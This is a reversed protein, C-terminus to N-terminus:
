AGLGYAVQINNIRSSASFVIIPLRDYLKNDRIEKICQIGSKSPMNLDIFLLDPLYSSLLSLLDDGNSVSTLKKDPAIQTLANKFTVRDEENDEALIITEVILQDTKPLDPLNM